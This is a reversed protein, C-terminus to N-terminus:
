IDLKAMERRRVEPDDSRVNAINLGSKKILSASHTPISTDFIASQEEYKALKNRLIENEEAVKNFNKIKIIEEPLMIRGNKESELGLLNTINNEDTEDKLYKSLIPHNRINNMEEGYDRKLDKMILGSQDNRLTQIEQKYNNLEKELAGIKTQYAPINNLQKGMDNIKNELAKINKSYDISDRVEKFAENRNHTEDGATYEKEEAFQLITGLDNDM